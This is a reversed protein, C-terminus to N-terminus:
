QQKYLAREASGEGHSRSLEFRFCLRDEKGWRGETFLQSNLDRVCCLLQTDSFWLAGSHDRSPNM